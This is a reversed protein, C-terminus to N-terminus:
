AALRPRADYVVPMTLVAAFGESGHRFRIDGGHARAISRCVTLGLGSGPRGSRRAEPSRYFPEFVRDMDEDPIGPGADLIEAMAEGHDLTVRVRAREGYKVANELLNSLLRRLGAPDVEVMTPVQGILEVDAGVLRADAISDAVLDALDLRQRAGPTSADRIFAIVEHIMDEMEAVERLLAPRQDDSVDELRFRLRTLPTRLDHSIAGVMATRDDVFARLRNHMQNFAHAARGIEAPGSLPIITASPDRGLMEAARAFGELPLVIRRAFFWALPSVIVLSLIFWLLVQKQWRNPFPEARPAVAVWHGDPRRVAAIFDGEIFPPTARDLLGQPQSRFPIPQPKEAHAAAPSLAVRPAATPLATAPLAMEPPAARAGVLPAAEVHPAVRPAVAPLPSPLAAPLPPAVSDRADPLSQDPALAEHPLPTRLQGLVTAGLAPGSGAPNPASPGMPLGHHSPGAGRAGGNGGPGPGRMGGGREGGRAGGPYGGGPMGGPFGGPSTGGPFGVNPLPGGPFGGGPGGPMGQAYARPVAFPSLTASRTTFPVRQRAPIAVGGVPLQTYFALVIDDVPKGLQKALAERATQSMLWGTGEVDPPGDLRAQELDPDLGRGALATAVSALNWQRPPHPPLLLTLALTVLQAAVLTCVLMAVLQWGLPPGALRPFRPTRM